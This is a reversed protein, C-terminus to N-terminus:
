ANNERFLEGYGLALACGRTAAVNFSSELQSIFHQIVTILEDNSLSGYYAKSFTALCEVAANRVRKLELLILMRNSSM